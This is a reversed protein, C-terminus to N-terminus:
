LNKLYKRMVYKQNHKQKIQKKKIETFCQLIKSTTKCHYKRKLLIEKFKNKKIYM